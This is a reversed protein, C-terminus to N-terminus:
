RDNPSTAARAPGRGAAADEERITREAFAAYVGAPAGGLLGDLMKGSCKSLVTGAREKFRAFSSRQELALAQRQEPIAAPDARAASVDAPAQSRRDSRSPVGAGESASDPLYVNM